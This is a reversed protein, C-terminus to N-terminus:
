AAPARLVCSDYAKTFSSPLKGGNLRLDENITRFTSFKVDKTIKGIVCTCYSRYAGYATKGIVKKVAATKATLSETDTVKIATNDDLARQTACSSVFSRKVSSTYTGPDRQGSCGALLAVSLAAVAVLVPLRRRRNSTAPM